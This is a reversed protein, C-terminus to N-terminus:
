HRRERRMQLVGLYGRTGVKRGHIDIEPTPRQLLKLKRVDLSNKSNLKRRLRLRKACDLSVVLVLFLARHGSKM